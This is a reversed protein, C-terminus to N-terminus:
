LNDHQDVTIGVKFLNTSPITESPCDSNCYGEENAIYEGNLNVKTACWFHSDGNLTCVDYTNGEYVFPFSCPIGAKIGFVTTCPNEEKLFGALCSL